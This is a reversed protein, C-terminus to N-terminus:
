FIKGTACRSSHCTRAHLRKRDVAPDPMRGLTRAAVGTPECAQLAQLGGELDPLPLAHAHAIEELSADLYGDSRLETILVLAGHRVDPHLRQLDVQRILSMLLGEQGAVTETAYAYAGGNSPLRLELYPNEAAERALEEALLDTPLRLMGLSTRMAPTLALTQRQRLELRPGVAM